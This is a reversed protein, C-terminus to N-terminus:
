EEEAQKMELIRAYPADLDVFRGSRESTDESVPKTNMVDGISMYGEDHLKNYPIKQQKIYNWVDAYTWYALPNMKYRPKRSSDTYDIELISLTSRDRGQSRRRGTIWATAHMQKLASLTPEVKTLYDYRRPNTKYLDNGFANDFEQRNTYSLPQYVFLNVNQFLKTQKLDQIFDYTEDFLHLTDITVVPMGKILDLKQLNDLIVLGSPGFSTVDVLSTPPFQDHAWLLLDKVNLKILYDNLKALEEKTPVRKTLDLQNAYDQARKM